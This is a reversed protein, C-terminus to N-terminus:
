ARQPMGSYQTTARGSARRSTYRSGAPSAYRETRERRAPSVTAGSARGSAVMATASRSGQRECWGGRGTLAEPGSALHNLDHWAALVRLIRGATKLILAYTPTGAAPNYCGKFLLPWRNTSEVDVRFELAPSRDEDEKWTVDGPVRKSDDALITTFEADTLPM